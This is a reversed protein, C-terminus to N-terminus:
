MQPLINTMILRPMFWNMLAWPKPRLPMIVTSMPATVLMTSSGMKIKTNPMPTCPAARAVMREWNREATHATEKRRPFFARMRMSRGAMFSFGLSTHCIRQRPKELKTMAMVLEMTCTAQLEVRCAKPPSRYTPTIVMRLETRSTTEVGM